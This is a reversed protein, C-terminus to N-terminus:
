NAAQEASLQQRRYRKLLFERKLSSVRDIFLIGDLHDIEHQLAVALLGKAEITTPKGDPGIGTAVVCEKRRVYSRIGPLSLCGEEFKITGHAEVIRPNALKILQAKEDENEEAPIEIVIVRRNVGIQPAALGLGGVSRMTDVLDEMLEVVSDDISDVDVSPKKLLPDPYKLIRRIM